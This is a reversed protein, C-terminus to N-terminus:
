LIIRPLVKVLVRVAWVVLCCPGDFLVSSYAFSCFCCLGTRPSGGGSGGLRREPFVRWFAGALGVFAAYRLGQPLVAVVASVLTSCDQSFGEGPCCCRNQSVEGSCLAVLRHVEVCLDVWYCGSLIVVCNQPFWASLLWLCTDCREVLPAVRCVSCRSLELLLASWASCLACCRACVLPWCVVFAACVGVVSPCGVLGPCREFTGFVFLLVVGPSAQLRGGYPLVVALSDLASRAAVAGVCRAVVSAVCAACCCSCGVAVRVRVMCPLQVGVIVVRGGLGGGPVGFNADGGVSGFIKLLIIHEFVGKHFPKSINLMARVQLFLVIGRGGVSTPGCVRSRLCPWRLGGCPRPGVLLVVGFGPYMALDSLWVRRHWQAATVIVAVLGGGSAALLPVRQGCARSALRAGAESGTCPHSLAEEVREQPHPDWSVSVVESRSLGELALCRAFLRPLVVFGRWVVPKYCVVLGVLSLCASVSVRGEQCRQWSVAVSTDGETVSRLSAVMAVLFPVTVAKNRGPLADRCCGQRSGSFAGRRCDQRSQPARHSLRITVALPTAILDRGLPGVGGRIDRCWCPPLGVPDEIGPRGCVMCVCWLPSPLM